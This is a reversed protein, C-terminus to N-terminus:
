AEKESAGSEMSPNDINLFHFHSANVSRHRQGRTHLNEWGGDAYKRGPALPALGFTQRHLM